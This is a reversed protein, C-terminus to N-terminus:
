RQQEIMARAKQLNDRATQYDPKLELAREYEGAALRYMSKAMHLNGLNNHAYAMATPDNGLLIAQRYADEAEADRGMQRYTVGMNVHAMAGAPHLQLARRYHELAGTYDQQLRLTDGWTREAFAAARLDARQGAAQQLHGIAASNDGRVRALLGLNATAMAYGPWIDLARRYHGEAGAQDGQSLAVSGLNNEAYAAAQLDSSQAAAEQWLGAARAVDGLSFEIAALNATARPWSGATQLARRYQEAAQEWQGTERLLNAWQFRALAFDPDRDLADAYRDLARHPQHPECHGARAQAFALAAQEDATLHSPLLVPVGLADALGDATAQLLEALGEASIRVDGGPGGLIQLTLELSPDRVLRGAVVVDAGLISRAAEPDPVPASPPTWGIASLVQEDSLVLYRGTESVADTLAAAIAPGWSLEAPEDAPPLIALVPANAAQALGCALLTLVVMMSLAVTRTMTDSLCEASIRM